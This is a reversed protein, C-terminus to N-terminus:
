TLAGESDVPSQRARAERRPDDGKPYTHCLAAIRSARPLPVAGDTHSRSVHERLPEM